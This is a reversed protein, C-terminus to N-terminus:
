RIDKEAEYCKEQEGNRGTCGETPLKKKALSGAVKRILKLMMREEGVRELVAENRIWQDRDQALNIWDKDDYGVDRLNMKINDEWRCRPRGLPRKGEPRGVLVRCANRSEGMRAVHEAWRLRKSKINRIIDPSSYLAHLETNHLKRWEGTVKDRDEPQGKYTEFRITPDIIMGQSLSESIAIIDIRRNSGNDATGHVEEYVTYKLKRLADTYRQGEISPVQCSFQLWHRNMKDSLVAFFKEKENKVFGGRVAQLSLTQLAVHYRWQKGETRSHFACCHVPFEEYGNSHRHNCSTIVVGPKTVAATVHTAALFDFPPYCHCLFSKIPFTSDEASKSSDSISQAQEPNSTEAPLDLETDRDPM